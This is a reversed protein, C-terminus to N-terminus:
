MTAQPHNKKKGKEKKKTTSFFVTLTFLKHGHVLVLIILIFSVIVYIFDAIQRNKVMVWAWNLQLEM